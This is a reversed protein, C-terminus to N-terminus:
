SQQCLLVRRLFLILLASGLALAGALFLPASFVLEQSFSGSLDKKNAFSFFQPALEKFGESNKEKQLEEQKQM